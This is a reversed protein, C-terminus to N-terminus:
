ASDQAVRYANATNPVGNLANFSSMVTAAGADVAARYPPLYDNFLQQTSMDVTNYERGAVPAGYGAFHKVTAAMKDAAAFNGGQYGRVKAAAVASGLYPDEGAGEVVRGWRADRAIDVMPNFTWKLGDATAESASVSEDNGVLGPDWSSAEGLPAPFMTKYGHIVDLSFILPIRPDCGPAM